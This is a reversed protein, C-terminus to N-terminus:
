QGSVPILEVDEAPYSVRLSAGTGPNKWQLTERTRSRVRRVPQEDAGSFVLGENRTGYVVRTLADPVFGSSSESRVRPAPTLAAAFQQRETSDPQSPTVRVLLFIAAAAAAGLGLALWAIRMQRRPLLGAAPTGHPEQALACEIRTALEPAPAIPRLQKLERELDSFDNM